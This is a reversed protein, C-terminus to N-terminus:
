VSGKEELMGLDEEHKKALAAISALTGRLIAAEDQNKFFNDEIFLEIGQIASSIYASDLYIDTISITKKNM